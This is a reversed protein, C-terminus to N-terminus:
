EPSRSECTFTLHRASRHSGDSRAAMQFWTETARNHTQIIRTAYRSPRENLTPINQLKRIFASSRQWGLPRPGRMGARRRQEQPSHLSSEKFWPRDRSWKNGGGGGGGGSYLANGSSLPMVCWNNLPASIFSNSETTELPTFSLITFSFACIHLRNHCM